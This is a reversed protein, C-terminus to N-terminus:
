DELIRYQNLFKKVWEADAGQLYVFRELQTNYSFSVSVRSGINGISAAIFPGRLEVNVSFKDGKKDVLPSSVHILRELYEVENRTLSTVVESVLEDDIHDASESM